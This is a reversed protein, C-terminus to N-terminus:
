LLDIRIKLKRFQEPLEHKEEILGGKKKQDLEKKKKKYNTVV